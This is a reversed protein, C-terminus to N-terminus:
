AMLYVSYNGLIYPMSEPIDKVLDFLEDAWITLVDTKQALDELSALLEDELPDREDQTEVTIIQM